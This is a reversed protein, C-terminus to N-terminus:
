PKCNFEDGTLKESVAWLQKAVEEDHSQPTSKVKGPEGKM